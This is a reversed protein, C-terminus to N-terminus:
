KGFLDYLRKEGAIEGTIDKMFELIEKDERMLEGAKQVASLFDKDFIIEDQHSILPCVAAGRYDATVEIGSETVAPFFPFIRCSLPRTKRDCTGDCVALRRGDKETISLVTDEHPFLLMGTDSDGKCCAANCVVGCDAKLPTLGDFM